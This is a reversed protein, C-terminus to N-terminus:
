QKKTYKIENEDLIDYLEGSRFKQQVESNGGIFKGKIFVRPVTRGGTIKELANQYDSGNPQLDLEFSRSKIRLDKLLTKVARSHPCYSKSFVFVDHKSIYGNVADEYQRAVLEEKSEGKYNPNLGEGSILESEEYIGGQYQKVKEGIVFYPIVGYCVFIIFVLFRMIRNFKM